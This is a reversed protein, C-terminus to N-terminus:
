TPQLLNKASCLTSVNSASLDMHAVSADHLFALGRAIDLAVQRGRCLLLKAM